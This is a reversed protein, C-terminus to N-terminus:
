TVRATLNNLQATLVDVARKYESAESAFTELMAGVRALEREAEHKQARLEQYNASSALEVTVAAKRKGDSGYRLKLNDDFEVSVDIMAQAELTAMDEKFEAINVKLEGRQVLGAHHDEGRQVLGAHHDEGRQQRGDLLQGLRASIADAGETVTITLGRHLEELTKEVGVAWEAMKEIRATNSKETM